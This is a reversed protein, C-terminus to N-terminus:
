QSFNFIPSYASQPQLDESKKFLSFEKSAAVEQQEPYIPEIYIQSGASNNPKEQYYKYEIATDIIDKQLISNEVIEDARVNTLTSTDIQASNDSKELDYKHKLATDIIIDKQLIFNEVIEDARVGTLLPDIEITFECRSRPPSKKVKVDVGAEETLLQSLYQLDVDSLPARHKARMFIACCLLTTELKALKKSNVNLVSSSTCSKKINRNIM